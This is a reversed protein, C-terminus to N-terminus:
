NQREQRPAGAETLHKTQWSCRTFLAGIGPHVGAVIINVNFLILADRLRTIGFLRRWISGPMLSPECLLRVLMHRQLVLNMATLAGSYVRARAAAAMTRMIRHVYLYNLVVKLVYAQAGIM